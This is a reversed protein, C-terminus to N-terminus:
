HLTLSIPDSGPTEFFGLFRELQARNGRLAIDGRDIAQTFSAKGLMIQDFVPKNLSLVLGTNDPLRDAFECIGRRITLVMQQSLDTFAFGVSMDVALTEEAKLRSTWSRLSAAPSMEAIIDPPVFVNAMKKAGVARGMLGELEKVSSLYWNRWNINMNAYGLQRFANAKIQRATEDAHDIRILYTALEAAWQYDGRDYAGGAESLLRDRGGMLAVLRRSKEKVPVPDLAVPDGEYWGLYGSYIARVTQKVTGYYQRLYPSYEYLHGPLKVREVLEDPTLGKNMYRVTQDHVFQIGDRTMRLVEEVKEAGYVPQGHAPVLYHAKLQRLRDISEVWQVPDRFKSGRLTYVNPFAPGQIVETDILVRSAPLYIALEDPAESPVHMMELEVGAITVALFEDVTNTPAIFTGPGGATLLPGIGVNMDKKDAGDLFMGFTYGARIGQIPALINSEDVLLRMLRAQAYIAVEGSQVQAESVFGKIGSIHDQHFHSYIVAVIPKDTIKRFELLVERSTVPSMGADVLIIGDDGEIMVTGAVNWGVASYVNDAVKYIKKVFHETHQKLEANIAPPVQAAIQAHVGGGTLGAMLVCLILVFVSTKM